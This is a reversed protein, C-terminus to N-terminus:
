ESGSFGESFEDAASSAEDDDDDDIIYTPKKATTAARRSPRAAAARQPSPDSQEEDRAKAPPSDLLDNAIGDVGGDDDSDSEVVQKKGNRAQKAAYAKAAPSLPAKKPPVSAPAPASAPAAKKAPARKTKPAASAKAVPKSAEKAAAKAGRSIPKSLIEGLSDGDSGSLAIEKATMGAAKRISPQPALKSYDTEDDSFGVDLKSLRPNSKPLGASSGPRSMSTSFLPRSGTTPEAVSGGIGKVMKSVDGLLDDGNDDDSDDSGGYNIAKRAAARPQRTAAPKVVEEDDDLSDDDVLTTTAAKKAVAASAKTTKSVPAEAAADDTGDLQMWVDDLSKQAPKTPVQAKVSPKATASPKTLHSLLGPTPKMRNVVTPKKPKSAGFDSDNPDEGQAKRKRAMPAKAGIKLKSSARRGLNAVKKQRKEEDDLQFKWEALFEDLDRKWLDEKSMKILADIEEEKDGIQRLLKEVREKTLSWIAM